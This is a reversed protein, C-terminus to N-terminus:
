SSAFIFTALLTRVKQIFIPYSCLFASFQPLILAGFYLQLLTQLIHLIHLCLFFIFKNPYEKSNGPNRLYLIFLTQLKVCRM